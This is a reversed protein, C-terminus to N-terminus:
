VRFKGCLSVWGGSRVWYQGSGVSGVLQGLRVQVLSVVWGSAVGGLGVVQGLRVM